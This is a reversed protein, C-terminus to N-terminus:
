PQAPETNPETGQPNTYDDMGQLSVPTSEFKAAGQCVIDYKNAKDALEKLTDGGVFHLGQYILKDPDDEFTIVHPSNPTKAM